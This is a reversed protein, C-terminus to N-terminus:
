RPRADLARRMPRAGEDVRKGSLPHVAPGDFEHLILM